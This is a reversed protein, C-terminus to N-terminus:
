DRKERALEAALEERAFSRGPKTRATADLKIYAQLAPILRVSFISVLSRRADM